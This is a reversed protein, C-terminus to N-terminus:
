SCVIGAQEMELLRRKMAVGQPASFGGLKGSAPVVRHCPVILPVRNRAMVSGVARAAGPRGAQKALEGYTRTEGYPIERCAAVVKRAFPTLHRGDVELDDFEALEGDAFRRIRDIMEDEGPRVFEVEGGRYPRGDVLKGDVSKATLARELARIADRESQHGFTLGLLCSEERAMAAFGLSTEFVFDAM